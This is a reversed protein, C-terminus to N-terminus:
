SLVEVRFCHARIDHTKTFASRSDVANNPFQDCKQFLDVFDLTHCPDTETEVTVVFVISVVQGGFHHLCDVM